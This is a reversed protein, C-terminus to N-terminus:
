DACFAQCCCFPGEAATNKPQTDASSAKHLLTEEAHLFAFGGEEKEAQMSISKRIGWEDKQCAHCQDCRAAPHLEPGKFSETGQWDLTASACKHLILLAVRKKFQPRHRAPAREPVPAEGFCASTGQRSANAGEGEDTGTGPHNKTITPVKEQTQLPLSCVLTGTDRYGIYGTEVALNGLTKAVELDQQMYATSKETNGLSWYASSLASFVSGRLKLSCTGIKLAAELVVVSAGHHGASLLEQGIVSVVVFPSKDLKMKQLQQYTPELSERLPSKMAAEVMGVLLQLSKPDQALGSAFAALADAHRGLYQLAVGQRFYAQPTIRGVSPDETPPFSHKLKSLRGLRGSYWWYALAACLCGFGARGWPSPKQSKGKQGLSAMRFHAISEFSVSIDVAAARRESIVAPFPVASPKSQYLFPFTEKPADLIDGFGTSCKWLVPFSGIFKIAAARDVVMLILHLFLSFLAPNQLCKVLLIELTKPWKPNLVRAKVADDLAAHYQGLKLCAASRNSYLICNQPDAVLAESYLDVATSFDGLQCAENSRRVKEMFEAKSM